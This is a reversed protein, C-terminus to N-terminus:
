LSSHNVFFKLSRLDALEADAANYHEGVPRGFAHDRNPYEHISVLPNQDVAQRMQAQAETSCFKDQGGFHLM